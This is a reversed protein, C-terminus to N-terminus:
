ANDFLMSLFYSTVLLWRGHMCANICAEMVVDVVVGDAAATAAATAAAPSRDIGVRGMLWFRVRRSCCVGM